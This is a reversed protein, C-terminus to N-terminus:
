RRSLCTVLTAWQDLSLEQPRIHPDLGAAELAASARQKGSAIVALPNVLQKRKQGFAARAIKFFVDANISNKKFFTDSIDSLAIIASDVKPKPSFCSAPVTKIIKATSFAQVSLALLNMGGKRRAHNQGTGGRNNALAPNMHPPHATVRQAVEKQITLVALAPWPGRELIMRLLHSTLYYPINAVIKYSGPQLHYDASVRALVKLIDGTVISVNAIGEKALSQRLEQALAEDKEVAILKKVRPAIARTLVGTGPGIELVTDKLSLEAAGVLTDSVWDCVLFHQGLSKKPSKKANKM